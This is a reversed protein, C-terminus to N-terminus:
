LNGSRRKGNQCLNLNPPTINHKFVDFMPSNCTKRM